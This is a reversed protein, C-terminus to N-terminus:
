LLVLLAVVLVSFLFLWHATSRDRVGLQQLRRFAEAEQEHQRIKERAEEDILHHNNFM